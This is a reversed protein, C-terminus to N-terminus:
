FQSQDMSGELIKSVRSISIKDLPMISNGLGNRSQDKKKLEEHMTALLHPDNGSPVTLSLEKEDKNNIGNSESLKHEYKQQQQRQHNRNQQVLSRRISIDVGNLKSKYSASEKSDKTYKTQAPVKNKNSKDDSTVIQYTHKPPFHPLFSPIYSPRYQNTKLYSNYKTKNTQDLKSSVTKARKPNPEKNSNVDEDARARKKSLPDDTETTNDSKEDKPTTVSILQSGFFNQSPIQDMEWIAKKEANQGANFSISSLNNPLGDNSGRCAEEETTLLMSGIELATNHLSNESFIPYIPVVDLYPANWAGEDDPKTNKSKLEETNTANQNSNSSSTSKQKNANMANSISNAILPNNKHALNKLKDGNKKHGILAPPQNNTSNSLNQTRTTSSKTNDDNKENAISTSKIAAKEKILKERKEQAERLAKRSQIVGKDFDVVKDNWKSGFAFTALKEWSSKMSEVDSISEEMSPSMNMEIANIADLINCHASSRNSTEVIAAMSQGM